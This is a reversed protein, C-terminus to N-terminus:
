SKLFRVVQEYIERSQLAGRHNLGNTEIYQVGPWARAITRSDEIPTVTDSRDHFMLAPIDIQPVLLENVIEDLVDSGFKENIMDRLGDMIEDPLKAIVQFRPLADMLRNFAGFYV